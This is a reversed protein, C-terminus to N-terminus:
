HLNETDRINISGSSQREATDEQGLPFSIEINKADTIKLKRDSQAFELGLLEVGLPLIASLWGHAPLLVSNTM